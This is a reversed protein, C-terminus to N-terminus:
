FTLNLGVAATSFFPYDASVGDRQEPDYYKRFNKLTSFTVLDQGSFYIRLRNVKLKSLIKGPITYGVQLNKMRVYQGNLIWKDSPLFNHTANVFPRPFAADPNEPTWYDRHIALPRSYSALSPDLSQRTPLFNRKGVGQFFVTFDIGKWELSVNAGFLLRPQATGLYVLDGYDDLNGSGSTIRKDGNIDVYRVDGASSRSDQFPWESVEEKTQFYGDTKYGWLTNLPYGELAAVTGATILKRGSFNILKNQNDSLNLAVTYSFGGETRGRYKLETEWGWSKLEGNNVRPTGVGFTSPLQMATLMNRNFKIYYDASVQIRNKWLGLDLGFNNTEITEWSLRSSPVVTQSFYSTRVEPAGMVLNIGQNILALYDYLGIGSAAGLRGWSTRLKLESILPAAFWSERHINWGASVSPFAKTRRGPALRSSEDTRLTAELLYKDDFSYNLRGFYSQFAYTSVGQSNTRTTADGLGLAPLDNNILSNVGASMSENRYDEWQYGLLLHFRNKRAVVLDYDVLFQANTSRAVDKYLAYSNPTNIINGVFTRHWLEVSRKFLARDSQRFQKSYVGRVTLGKVLNSLKANFVGDFINRDYNNFGGAAINAYTVDALANFRGEPTLYPNVGSSRYLNFLLLGNGNTNTSPAEQKQLTYAIRADVSLHRTLQTGVNLRMNYRKNQDPGVKFVGQKDYYGLSMMFNLRDTGGRASINHTQMWTRKRMLQDTLPETNFYQYRTTDNPNIRYPMSGDKLFQIAEESYTPASGSNVRALNNYLSEEWVPMKEPVNIAWDAGGLAAYEFITKGQMGKKTTVLIVGGAAQAGYIAAAAADKLVSITEIDNPNLTQLSVGPSTVGDVVLLPAVNGNASTAGRIQIDVGEDGPQGTTRTVTLGPSLGQLALAANAVPRNELDKASITSVAGTLNEKRQAGYGVVVVEDLARDDEQLSVDVSTRNGVTVEQTVYGVFSFVLVARDDPVTLDFFGEPNTTTGQQTGKVLISVGPLGEGSGATTVRGKVARDPIPAPARPVRIDMDGIDAFGGNSKAGAEPSDAAPSLSKIESTEKAKPFIAYIKGHRRYDLGNGRLVRDLIKQINEGPVKQYQVQLKKIKDSQYLFFISYESELERLVQEMSRFTTQPAGTDQLIHYSVLTQLPLPFARGPFLLCLMGVTVFYSIKMYM